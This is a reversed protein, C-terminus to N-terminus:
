ISRDLSLDKLMPLLNDMEINYEKISDNQPEYEKMAKLSVIVLTVKLPKSFLEEM